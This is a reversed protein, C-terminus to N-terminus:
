RYNESVLLILTLLSVISNPFLVHRMMYGIPLKLLQFNSQVNVIHDSKWEREQKQKRNLSPLSLIPFNKKRKMFDEIPKIKRPKRLPIDNSVQSLGNKKNKTVKRSQRSRSPNRTHKPTQTVTHYEVIQSLTHM